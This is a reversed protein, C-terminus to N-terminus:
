PANVAAKWAKAANSTGSQTGTPSGWRLRWDARQGNADWYEVAVASNARAYNVVDTITAARHTPNHVDELYGFESIMWPSGITHAWKILPNLLGAATLWKVGDTYGAPIGPTNTAHPWAYADFGVLDAYNKGNADKGPWYNNPNRGQFGTVSVSMLTISVRRQANNTANLSHVLNAFVRQAAVFQAATFQGKEINEEPEHWLALIINKPTSSIFTKLQADYQHNAVGAPPLNFSYDTVMGAAPDGAAPTQQFTSYHWGMDYVRHIQVPGINATYWAWDPAYGGLLPKPPPAAATAASTGVTVVAAAAAALVTALIVRGPSRRM